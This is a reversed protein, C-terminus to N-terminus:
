WLSVLNFNITLTGDTPSSIWQEATEYGYAECTIYGSMPTPNVIEYYGNIDTVVTDYDFKVSAGSVPIVFATYVHGAIKTEPPPPPPPATGAYFTSDNYIDQEIIKTQTKTENSNWTIARLCKGYPMNFIISDGSSVYRAVKNDFGTCGPERWLLDGEISTYTGPLIFTM